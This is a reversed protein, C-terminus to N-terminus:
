WVLCFSKGLLCNEQRARTHHERVDITGFRKVHFVKTRNLGVIPCLFRALPATLLNALVWGRIGDLWIKQFNKPYTSLPVPALSVLFKRRKAAGAHWLILM